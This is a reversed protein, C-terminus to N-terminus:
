RRIEVPSFPDLLLDPLEAGLRRSAARRRLNRGWDLRSADVEIETLPSWVTPTGRQWLRTCVLAVLLDMAFEGDLAAQAADGLSAPVGLASRDFGGAEVLAARDFVILDPEAGAVEHDVQYIGWPGPDDLECGPHLEMLAPFHIHGGSVVREDAVLRPAAAGVDAEGALAELPRIREDVVISRHHLVIRDASSSRVAADLAAADSEADWAVPQTTGPPMPREFRILYPQHPAPTARANSGIRALHAEAGALTSEKVGPKEDLDKAVSGDIARWEYLIDPIHGVSGAREVARLNFDRDASPEMEPDLRGITEVLARRMTVIHCFYNMSAFRHPSYDPKRYVFLVEGEEDVLREDTYIVDDAPHEVIHTAIAALASPLLRDDHDSFVIWDNTAADLGDNTAAAIGGNTPRRLVRFRPDDAAFSEALDAAAPTPSGDDVLLCEFHPYTQQAISTLQARLHEIPSDYLPIVVSFTPQGPGPPPSGLLRDALPGRLRDVVPDPVARKAASLLRRLSEQASRRTRHVPSAATM